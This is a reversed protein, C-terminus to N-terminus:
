ICPCLNCHVVICPANGKSKDGKGTGRKEGETGGEVFVFVFVFIKNFGCAARSM